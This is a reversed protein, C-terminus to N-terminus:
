DSAVLHDVHEAECTRASDVVDDLLVVSCRAIMPAIVQWLVRQTLNLMGPIAIRSGSVIGQESILAEAANRVDGFSLELNSNKLIVEDSAYKGMPSFVDGFGRVELSGNVVSSELNKEPMGFPDRSIVVTERADSVQHILASDVISLVGRSQTTVVAQVSLTAAIWIPSQWHNGLDIYVEDGAEVDLGDRMMNAAKSVGNLFTTGSLEIRGIPNVWTYMPSSGCARAAGAIDNWM